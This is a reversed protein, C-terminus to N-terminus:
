LVLEVSQLTMHPKASQLENFACAALIDIAMDSDSSLM